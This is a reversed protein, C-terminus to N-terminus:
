IIQKIIISYLIMCRNAIDSLLLTETALSEEIVYPDEKKIEDVSVREKKWFEISDELKKRADELIMYYPPITEKMLEVFYMFTAYVDTLDQEARFRLIREPELKHRKYEIIADLIFCSFGIDALAIAENYIDKSVVSKEWIEAIREITERLVGIDEDLILNKIKEKYLQSLNKIETLYDSDLKRVVDTM